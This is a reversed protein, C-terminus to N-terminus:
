QKGIIIVFREKEECNQPDGAFTLIDWERESGRERQREIERSMHKATYEIM